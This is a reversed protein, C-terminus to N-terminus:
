SAVVLEGNGSVFDRAHIITGRLPALKEYLAILRERLWARREILDPFVIAGKLAAIKQSFMHTAGHGNQVLVWEMLMDLIKFATVFVLPAGADLFGPRWDGINVNGVAYVTYTPPGGNPPYILHDVGEVVLRENTVAYVAELLWAEYETRSQLEVITPAPYTPPAAM